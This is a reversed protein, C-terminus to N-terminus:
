LKGENAETTILARIEEPWYGCPCDECCHEGNDELYKAAEELGARRGRQFAKEFADTTVTADMRGIKEGEALGLAFAQQIAERLITPTRTGAENEWRDIARTTIEALKDEPHNANREIPTM